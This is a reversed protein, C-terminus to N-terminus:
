VFKLEVFRNINVFPLANTSLYIAMKRRHLKSIKLDSLIMCKLTSAKVYGQIMVDDIFLFFISTVQNLTLMKYGCQEM